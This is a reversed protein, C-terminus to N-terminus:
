EVGGEGSNDDTETAEDETPTNEDVDKEVEDSDDSDDIIIDEVEFEVDILSSVLKSIYEDTACESAANWKKREEATIHIIINAIHDKLSIIAKAIKGLGKSIKEGSTMEMLEEEIEFEILLDNPAYNKVNGLGVYDNDIDPLQEFVLKKNSDLQAYGNAEGTSTEINKVREDLNFDELRVIRNDLELILANGDSLLGWYITNTVPIGSPVDKKAWYCKYDHIVLDMKEYNVTSNYAGKYIYMVRGLDIDEYAM